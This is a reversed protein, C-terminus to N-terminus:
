KRTLKNVLTDSFIEAGQHNLHVYDAFLKNNHIFLDGYDLIQFSGSLIPLNELSNGNFLPANVMVIKIGNENCIDIIKQLYYTQIESVM